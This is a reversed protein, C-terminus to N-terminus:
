SILHTLIARQRHQHFYLYNNSFSSRTALLWHRDIAGSQHEQSDISTIPSAAGPPLVDRNGSVAALFGPNGM